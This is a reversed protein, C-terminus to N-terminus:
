EAGAHVVGSGYRLGDGDVDRWPQRRHHLYLQRARRLRRGISLRCLRGSQREGLREVCRRRRVIHLADGDPDSDNALVPIVTDVGSAATASDDNAVPSQNASTVRIIFVQFTSTDIGGNATGGDDHAQVFVIADGQAGAFTAFTLAGTADVTPQTMFLWNANNSVLFSVTQGGENAPGASIATAWGPVTVSQGDGAVMQSPGVIFSPADNVTNVTITVTAVNSDASGDNAMYTFADTGFFNM